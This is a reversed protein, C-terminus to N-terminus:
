TLSKHGQQNYGTLSKQGHSIWPLFVPSPQMEKELPDGQGLSCVRTEQM